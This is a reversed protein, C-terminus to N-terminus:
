TRDRHQSSGRSSTMTVCELIRALSIGYVTSGPSSHDMHHCLTLCLQFSQACMCDAKVTKREKRGEKRETKGKKEQSILFNASSTGNLKPMIKNNDLAM